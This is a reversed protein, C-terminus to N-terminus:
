EKAERGIEEKLIRFRGLCILFRKYIIRSKM